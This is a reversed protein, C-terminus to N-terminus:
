YEQPLFKRLVATLDGKRLFGNYRFLLENKENFICFSPYSMEGTEGKGLWAALEHIGAQLGNPKYHFVHKNFAIPRQEASNLVVYYYSKELLSNRMQGELYQQMAHCYKCWDATILVFVLRKEKQQLSPLQDFSVTDLPMAFLKAGLVISCILWCLVARLIM